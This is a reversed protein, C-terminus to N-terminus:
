HLREGRSMAGRWRRHFLVAAAAGALLALTSPEPVSAPEITLTIDYSGWVSVSPATVNPLTTGSVMQEDFWCLEPIGPTIVASYTVDIPFTGLLGQSTVQQDGLTFWMASYKIDGSGQLTMTGHAHILTSASLWQSGRIMSGSNANGSPLYPGYGDRFVASSASSM